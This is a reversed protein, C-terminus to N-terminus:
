FDVPIVLISGEDFGQGPAGPTGYNSLQLIQEEEMLATVEVVPPLYLSLKEM